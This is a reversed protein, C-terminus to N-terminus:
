PLLRPFPLVSRHRWEVVSQRKMRALYSVDAQLIINSDKFEHMLHLDMEVVCGFSNIALALLQCILVIPKFRNLVFDLLM